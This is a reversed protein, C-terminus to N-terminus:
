YRGRLTHEAAGFIRLEEEQVAADFGVGMILIDCVLELLPYHLTNDTTSVLLLYMVMCAAVIGRRTYGNRGFYWVRLVTMSLLWVIYGSFGLEIFYLLFENHLSTIGTGVFDRFPRDLLDLSYQSNFLLQVFGLGQGTFGPNFSYFRDMLRYIETRGLTAIGYEELLDFAGNCVLYVYGLLILVLAFMLLMALRLAQKEHKHRHLFFLVCSVALCILIAAFAIRKLACLFCFLVLSLLLWFWAKKRFCLMMFLVYAGTCFALEHFEAQIIVSGTNNAFSVLLAALEQLFIGIGNQVIVQGLLILNAILLCVLNYWVGKEGFMYLFTGAAFAVVVPFSYSLYVSLSRKIQAIDTQHAVWTILTFFISVLFPISLVLAYKWVLIGRAIRPKVLFCVFGSLAIILAFLYRYSVYSPIYFGAELFYYMLIGFGMFYIEALRQPLKKEM